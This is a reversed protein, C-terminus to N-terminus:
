DNKWNKNAEKWYQMQLEHAEQGKVQLYIATTEAREHGLITKLTYIDMGGLIMACACGHRLGKATAQPGEIGAHELASKVIRWGTSRSMPKRPASKHSWLPLALSTDKAKKLNRLNYRYDLGSILEPPVPVQRYVPAKLEGKATRKRKKLTRFIITQKDCDINNGTLELAESLRAGTWHLVHCFLRHRRSKLRNTSELFLEREREDLYLRQGLKPDFLRMESHYKEV